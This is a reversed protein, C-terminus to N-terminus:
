LAASDRARERERWLAAHRQVFDEFLTAPRGLVNRVSPSVQSAEGTRVLRYFRVLREIRDEPLGVRRLRERAEDEELPVYRVSCGSAASITRAVEAHDLARGGTLTYAKGIHEPDTLAAVAVEAVDLADIFSIRADAAPLAIVGMSGISALLSGTSFVQAFFNPRLHTFGIGSRELHLEIKRLAVTHDARETGMASLNVVHRVDHRKMEDILPITFRDAHEDGPRAILFVRDVGHLAPGLTEPREFDFRV